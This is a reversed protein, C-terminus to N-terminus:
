FQHLSLRHPISEYLESYPRTTLEHSCSLSGELEM